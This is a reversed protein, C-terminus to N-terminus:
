YQWSFISLVRRYLTYNKNKESNIFSKIMLNSIKKNILDSVYLKTYM